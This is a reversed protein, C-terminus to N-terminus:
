VFYKVREKKFERTSYLIARDLYGFRDVIRAIVRDCDSPEKGHIMTYLAYPWDDFTPREYCHSVEDIDACFEGIEGLREGPVNWVVMANAKFGAQRHRLVASIRRLRGQARMAETWEALYAIAIGLRSCIQEYPRSVIPLDEQLARIIETDFGSLPNPEGSDRGNQHNRRGVSKGSMGFRVGIRFVKLAPLSRCKQFCARRSLDALEEDYDEGPPVALTFWLNFRHDREYNHSVGPHASVVAAGDELRDAPLMAVVLASTYGLKRTDFIASIQRILGSERHRQTREIVEVESIGLVEGVLSFPQGVVPLDGQLHDVLRRDMEDLENAASIVESNM